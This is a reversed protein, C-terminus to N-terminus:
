DIDMGQVTWLGTWTMGVGIDRETKIEFHRCREKILMQKAKYTIVSVFISTQENMEKEM